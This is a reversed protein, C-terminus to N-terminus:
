MPLSEVKIGEEGVLEVLRQQLAPCYGTTVNTLKLNTVKGDITLSLAIENGFVHQGGATAPQDERPRATGSRATCITPVLKVQVPPIRGIEGAQTVKDGLGGLTLDHSLDAKEIALQTTLILM